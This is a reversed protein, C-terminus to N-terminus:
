NQDTWQFHKGRTSSSSRKKIEVWSPSLVPSTEYYQHNQEMMGMTRSESRELEANFESGSGGGCYVTRDDEEEELEEEEPVM